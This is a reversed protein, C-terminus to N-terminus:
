NGDNDIGYMFKIIRFYEQKAKAPNKDAMKQLVKGLEVGPDYKPKIGLMQKIKEISFRKAM